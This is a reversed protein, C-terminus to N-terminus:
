ACSGRPPAAGCIYAVKMALGIAVSGPDAMCMWWETTSMAEPLFM